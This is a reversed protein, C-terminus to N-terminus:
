RVTIKESKGNIVRVFIGDSPNTVECGQMNFYRAKGSAIENAAVSNDVEGTFFFYQDALNLIFTVESYTNDLGMNAGDRDGLPYPEGATMDAVGTTYYESCEKDSIKFKWDADVKDLELMYVDDDVEQFSYAADFGWDNFSGTLMLSDADPTLGEVTLTLNNLDLIFIVEEVEKPIDFDGVNFAIAYEGDEEILGDESAPGYNLEWNGNARFKFKGSFDYMTAKWVGDRIETMQFDPDGSNGWVNFEGVVGWTNVQETVTVSYVGDVEKVFYTAKNNTGYFAGEPMGLRLGYEGSKAEVTLDGDPNDVVPSLRYNENLTTWAEDLSVPSDPDEPMVLQTAFCFYNYEGAFGSWEWGGEVNKMRVGRYPEWNCGGLSGIIYMAPQSDDPDASPDTVTLSYSGATEKIFFTVESGCGKFANDKGGLTLVYEGQEALTGNEGPNLRYTSNFTNWDESELLQTAFAFWQNDGVTGTWKWGGDEEQMEIGNMPSWSGAPDGILYLAADASVTMMACAALTLLTKKMFLVKLLNYFIIQHLILIFIKVNKLIHEIVYSNIQIPYAIKTIKRGFHFSHLKYVWDSKCLKCKHVGLSNDVEMSM